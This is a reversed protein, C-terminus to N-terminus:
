KDLVAEKDNARQIENNIQNMLQEGEPGNKRSDPLGEYLRQLDSLRRLAGRYEALAAREEPTSSTAAKKLRKEATGANRQKVAIEDKWKQFQQKNYEEKRGREAAKEQLLGSHYREQEGLKAYGLEAAYARQAAANAAITARYEAGITPNAQELMYTIDEDSAGVQKAARIFALADPSRALALGPIMPQGGQVGPAGGQASPPPGITPAEIDVEPATGHQAVISEGIQNGQDDFVRVRTRGNPLDQYEQRRGTDPDTEVRV